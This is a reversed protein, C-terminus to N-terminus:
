DVIFFQEYKQEYITDSTMKQNFKEYNKIASMLKKLVSRERKCAVLTYDAVKGSETDCLRNIRGVVQIFQSLSEPISLVYMKDIGYLSIAESRQAVVVVRPTITMDKLDSLLKIDQVIGEKTLYDSGPNYDGLFFQDEATAVTIKWNKQAIILNDFGIVVYTIGFFKLMRIFTDLGNDADVYVACRKGPGSYFVNAKNFYERELFFWGKPYYLQIYHEKQLVYTSVPEAPNETTWRIFQDTPNNILKFSETITGISNYGHFPNTYFFMNVSSHILVNNVNNVPENKIRTQKFLRKNVNTSIGDNYYMIYNNLDYTQRNIYKNYKKFSTNISFTTKINDLDVPTATFIYKRTASNIYKQIKPNEYLEPYNTLFHGEDFILVSNSLDFNNQSNLFQQTGDMYRGTDQADAIELLQSYRLVVCPANPPSKKKTKYEQMKDAKSSHQEKLKIGSFLKNFKDFSEYPVGDIMKTNGASVDGLDDGGMKKKWYAHYFGDLRKLEKYLGFRTSNEDVIVITKLRSFYFNEMVSAIAVTKGSGTRYAIIMDKAPSFENLISKSFAQYKTLVTTTSDSCRDHFNALVPAASTNIFSKFNLENQYVIDDDSLFATPIDFTTFLDIPKWLRRVEKDDQAAISKDFVFDNILQKLIRFRPYSNIVKNLWKQTSLQLEAPNFSLINEMNKFNYTQSHVKDSNKKVLSYIDVIFPHIFRNEPIEDSLSFKKVWENPTAERLHQAALITIIAEEYTKKTSYDHTPIWPHPQIPLAILHISTQRNFFAKEVEFLTILKKGKISRYKLGERDIVVKNVVGGKQM